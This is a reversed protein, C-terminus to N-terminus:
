SIEAWKLGNLGIVLLKGGMCQVHMTLRFFTGNSAICDYAHLQLKLYTALDQITPLRFLELKM